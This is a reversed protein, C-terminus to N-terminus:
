LLRDQVFFASLRERKRAAIRELVQALEGVVEIAWKAGTKNQAVFLAGDCIDERTKKLLDAPRWGTL